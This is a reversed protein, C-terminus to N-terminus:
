YARLEDTYKDARREAFNDAVLMLGSQIILGLAIGCWFLDKNKMIFYLATGGILLASEIARYLRFSKNVKEMRVLEDTKLKKPENMVYATVRAIDKPSRVFITSGVFLQIVGVAFLPYAAGTLLDENFYMLFWAAFGVTVIGFFLFVLSEWREAKFYREAKYIMEQKKDM